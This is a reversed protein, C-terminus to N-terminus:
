ILACKLGGCRLRSFASSCDDDTTFIASGLAELSNIVSKVRECV